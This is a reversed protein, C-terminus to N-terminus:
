AFRVDHYRARSLRYAVAASHRASFAHAALSDARYPGPVAAVRSERRWGARQTVVVEHHIGQDRSGPGRPARLRDGRRAASRRDDLEDRVGRRRGLSHTRSADSSYGTPRAYGIRRAD